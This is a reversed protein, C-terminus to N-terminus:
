YSWDRTIMDKGSGECDGMCETFDAIFHMLIDHEGRGM